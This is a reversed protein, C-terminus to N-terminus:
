LGDAVLRNTRQSDISPGSAPVVASLQFTVMAAPATSLVIVSDSAWATWQKATVAAPPEVSSVLRSNLPRAVMSQFSRVYSQPM